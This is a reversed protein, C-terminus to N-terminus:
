SRAHKIPEIKEIHARGKIPRYVRNFLFRWAGLAARVIWSRDQVFGSTWKVYDAEDPLLDRAMDWRVAKLRRGPLWYRWGARRRLKNEARRVIEGLRAAFFICDNTQDLLAFGNHRIREDQESKARLGLYREVKEKHGSPPTARFEKVLENRLDISARLDAVADLVAVLTAIAEGGLFCRELVIKELSQESFKLQSLSRLDIQITLPGRPNILFAAHYALAAKFAEEMPRVHQKKLALAKNAIAFTLADASRLSHLEAVITRKTQARSTIWAGFLVGIGAGLLSRAVEPFQSWFNQGVELASWADNSIPAFIDM